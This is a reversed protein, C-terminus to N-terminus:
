EDEEPTLQSAILKVEIASKDLEKPERKRSLSKKHVDAIIDELKIPGIELREKKGWRESYKRELLWQASKADKQADKMILDVLVIEAQKEAETVARAFSLYPERNKKMWTRMTSYSVGAWESAIEPYSGGAIAAVIKQQVEPTLKTKVQM